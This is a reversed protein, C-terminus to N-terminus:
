QAGHRLLLIANSDSIVVSDGVLALGIPGSLRPAAGLLIGAVGVTGAVTTTVGDPTVKRLNGNQIDTLYLNGARDIAVGTPQAFRAATGTADASGAMAASGALTTVVGGATVKRLTHNVFDAVYLNDDRDVAIGAPFSFQAAAGTGDASGTVGPTGALTTVVGAVTVKRITNNSGDTVYLNGASGIVLGTPADFRAAMGTGDASGRMGAMGALTTVVGAPTIQRITQNDSDAVYVTGADDVAIGVPTGFRAAAGTGDASGPVGGTGALTTVVGDPTIKRITNTNDAVYISNSKDAAVFQPNFFRAASGTADTSGRLGARGALTTVVGAATVRRITSNALDAVYYNGSTDVAVGAPFNFQAAAGMGDAAGAMGATGVLTTVVSGTSIRRITDNRQDAVYVNGDKDVAVGAPSNFRADTGTNDADGRLGSSGAFTTVVGAPTIKRITHNDQDAVFVNGSTDVAVSSPRNFQAATGTGDVGGCVGGALTAVVRAATITRIMCNTADAVYVTGAGDVAVGAPRFFRAADGIGNANGPMGAAGAHTTVGGAATIKRITHNEQDAVYLNGASDVAVGSPRNFRAATGTGDASGPERATGALTTVVGDSAIKRIVGNGTDAVYVNGASDVATAGPGGFRAEAGTGDVSGGGGIDGALLELTVPLPGGDIPADDAGGGDPLDPLPSYSCSAIAVAAVAPNWWMRRVTTMMTM